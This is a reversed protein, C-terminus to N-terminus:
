DNKKELPACVAQYFGKGFITLHRYQMPAMEILGLRELADYCFSIETVSFSSKREIFSNRRTRLEVQELLHRKEDESVSIDSIENGGLLAFIVCDKPSLKAIIDFYMPRISKDDGTLAKALLTSWLEVIEDAAVGDANKLIDYVLRASFENSARQGAERIKEETRDSLKRRCYGLAKDVYHDGLREFSHSVFGGTAQDIHQIIEHAHMLDNM